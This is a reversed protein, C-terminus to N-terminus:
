NNNELLEKAYQLSTESLNNGSILRAIENTVQEKEIKEIHSITEQNEVTKKVLLFNNAKSAVTPLHSICIVQTSKSIDLLKEAMRIGIEGSIGSDVEDFLLSSVGDVQYFIKKLALMLRSIEGGSATKSVSKMEQGKNASFVFEVLDKGLTSPNKNEFNIKFSTNKMGLDFLESIIQEEIKSAYKKRASSLNECIKDIEYSILDREKNLKMITGESDEIDQLNNQLEDLFSLIKEISNGYKRKLTKIEDMRLVLKNFELEDFSINKSLSNLSNSIDELDIRLSQLRDYSEAITEIKLLSSLSAIISNIQGLCSSSNESLSSNVFGLVEFIKESNSLIELKEKIEEEEGIQLNAKEIEEIQFSLIDKKREREEINGGINSIKFDIEKKLDFLQELKSLLEFIERGGFKDLMTLHNKSKLLEIGEHQVLSDMLTKGLSKIMSLTVPNGNIKCINKGEISFSRSIVLEDDDEFDLDSLLKKTQDSLSTFFADVKMQNEGFRLLTKDTKEGLIFGIADFVLSKGSGTEGLLINFSDCFEISENKILAFNKIKLSTLM